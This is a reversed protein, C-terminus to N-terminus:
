NTHKEWMNSSRRLLRTATPCTPSWTKWTTRLPEFWRLGLCWLWTVLSWRFAGPPPVFFGVVTWCLTSQLPAHSSKLVVNSLGQKQRLPRCGDELPQDPIESHSLLSRSSRPDAVFCCVRSGTLGALDTFKGSIEPPTFAFVFWNRWPRWDSRHIKWEIPMLSTTTSTQKSTPYILVLSNSSRIVNALIADMCAQQFMHPSVTPLSPSQFSGSSPNSYVVLLMSTRGNRSVVVCLLCWLIEDESGPIWTERENLIEVCKVHM